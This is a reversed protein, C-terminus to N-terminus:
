LSLIFMILIWFSRKWIAILFSNPFYMYFFSLFYFLWFLKPFSSCLQLVGVVWNWSVIFRCYSLCHLISLFGSVYRLLVFSLTWLYNLFDLLWNIKFLPVFANLIPLITKEVFSAPIITCCIFFFFHQFVRWVKYFFILFSVEFHIISM